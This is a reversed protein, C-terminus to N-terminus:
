RYGRLAHRTFWDPSGNRILSSRMSIAYYTVFVFFNTWCLRQRQRCFLRACTLCIYLDQDEPRQRAAEVGREARDVVRELDNLEQLIRTVLDLYAAIM